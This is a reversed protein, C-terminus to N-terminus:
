SNVSHGSECLAQTWLRSYIGGLASKNDKNRRRLIRMKSGIVPGIFIKAFDRRERNEDRATCHLENGWLKFVTEAVARRSGASKDDDLCTEMLKGHAKQLGFDIMKQNFEHRNMSNFKRIYNHFNM